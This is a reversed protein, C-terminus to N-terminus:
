GVAQDASLLKHGIRCYFCKRKDCYERRLQILAQTDAADVPVIGAGRFERIVSNDEPKISHLITAARACYEEYDNEKGYAFLIPVVTNIILTNISEDGVVKREKASKKGFAYHNLWYESPEARFYSQLKNYDTAELIHSFLRGSKQFIAALQAVRVEPFSRPRVRLKKLIHGGICRLSYKAKLFRYEKQMKSYYDDQVFEGMPYEGDLFGAQGFMLAEVQFLSDSHKLIHKFPLSLAFREFADGNVGFGFNRSLAVYFVDDWSNKFRTLHSLIDNTKRELREICLVTLWASLMPESLSSLFNKCPVNCKSHMLFGASDRLRDPVMLRCQPVLQGMENRIECTIEGALHLIVSNYAKDLHHGHKEWDASTRHIEM